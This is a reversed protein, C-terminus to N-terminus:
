QASQHPPTAPRPQIDPAAHEVPDPQAASQWPMRSRMDALKAAFRSAADADLDLLTGGSEFHEIFVQGLAFSVTAGLVSLTLAGLMSGPGLALVSMSRATLVAAVLANSLGQPLGLLLASIALRGKDASFPVEYLAAIRAVMRIQLATVLVVDSFPIPVLGGPVSLASHLRVQRYAERRRVGAPGPGHDPQRWLFALPALQQQLRQMM